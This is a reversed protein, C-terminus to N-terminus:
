KQGGIFKDMQVHNFHFGLPELMKKWGPRGYVELKKCDAKEFAWKEFEKIKNVWLPLDTGTAINVVGVNYNPYQVIESICVGKFNDDQDVTVWLQKLGVKCMEKIHHDDMLTKGEHNRELAAQVKEKVLPWIRDIEEARFQILYM